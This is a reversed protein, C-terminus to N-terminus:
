QDPKWEWLVNIIKWEGDVKGVHLYDIWTIAVIKVSAVNEFVDLITVDSQRGEQEAVRAGYGSETVEVLQQATMNRVMDKGTDSDRTVDRKALNPHLARNMREGNAEYFGDIYDHAVRIIAERDNDLLGDPLRAWAFGVSAVAVVIVVISARVKTNM